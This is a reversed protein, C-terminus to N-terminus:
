EASDPDAVDPAVGDDAEGDAPMTEDLGGSAFCPDSVTTSKLPFADNRSAPAQIYEASAHGLVAIVYPQSPVPLNALQWSKMWIHQLLIRGVKRLARLHRHSDMIAPYYNLEYQKGLFQAARTVERFVGLKGKKLNDPRIAHGFFVAISFVSKLIPKWSFQPRDKRTDAVSQRAEVVTDKLGRLWSSDAESPVENREKKAKFSKELALHDAKANKLRLRAIEYARKWVRVDERYKALKELENDLEALLKAADGGSTDLDQRLFAFFEATKRDELSRFHRYAGEYFGGIKIFNSDIVFMLRKLDPAHHIKEGERLESGPTLGAYMWLKSVNAFRMPEDILALLQVISPYAIGRAVEKLWEALPDGKILAVCRKLIAREHDIRPDLILEEDAMRAAQPYDSAYDRDMGNIFNGASIRDKQSKYFERVLFRLRAGKLSSRRREPKAQKPRKDDLAELVAAVSDQDSM